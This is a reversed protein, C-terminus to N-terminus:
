WSSYIYMYWEHIQYNTRDHLNRHYCPWNNYNKNGPMKWWTTHMNSVAIQHNNSFLKPNSRCSDMQNPHVTYIYIYGSVTKSYMTEIFSFARTSSYGLVCILVHIISCIPSASCLVFLCCKFVPKSITFERHGIPSIVHCVNWHSNLTIGTM